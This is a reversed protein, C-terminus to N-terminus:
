RGMRARYAAMERGVEAEDAEDERERREAEQAEEQADLQAHQGSELDRRMLQQISLAKNKDKADVASSVRAGDASGPAVSPSSSCSPATEAGLSLVPNKEMRQFLVFLREAEREKEEPTMESLGAARVNVNASPGDSLSTIPHRPEASIAGGAPAPAPATTSGPAAPSAANQEGDVQDTIETINGPPPQTIGKHFLFGAANGYGIEASM